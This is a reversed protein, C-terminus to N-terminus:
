PMQKNESTVIRPIDTAIKRLDELGFAPGEYQSYPNDSATEIKTSQVKAGFQKGLKNAVEPVIKDYFGKMGEGGVKLDQVPSTIHEM